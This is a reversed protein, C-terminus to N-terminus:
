NRVELEICAIAAVNKEAEKKSPGEGCFSLEMPWPIRVTAQWFKGQVEKSDFRLSHGKLAGQLVNHLREKANPFRQSAEFGVCIHAPKKVATNQRSVTKTPPKVDQLPGGGIVFDSSFPPRPRNSFGVPPPRILRPPPRGRFPPYRPQLNNGRPQHFGRSYAM